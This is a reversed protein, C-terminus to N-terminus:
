DLPDIVRSEGTMKNVCRKHADECGNWGKDFNESKYKQTMWRVDEGIRDLNALELQTIAKVFDTQVSGSLAQNSAELIKQFHHLCFGKSEGLAKKFDADQNWLYAITFCYRELRGQMSTCVLCGEERKELQNSFDTIANLTKRGPKAGLLAKFNKELKERTTSLYTDAMLAIGQPKNAVLLMQAHTPCFGHENVKVRTEPNMVSNGLYFSIAHQEAGKMLDCVFCESGSKVGDWVPITELEIKM